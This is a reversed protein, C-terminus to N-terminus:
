GQGAPSARRAARSVIRALRVPEVGCYLVPASEPKEGPLPIPRGHPCTRPYGLVSCLAEAVERPLRDASSAAAERARDPDLGARVFAVELVGYKWLYELLAELGEETLRVGVGERLELLGRQALRRLMISATPLSVGVESAVQGVGVWCDSGPLGGLRYVAKLYDYSRRGIM